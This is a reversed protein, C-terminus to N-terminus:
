HYNAALVPRQMHPDPRLGGLKPRSDVYGGLPEQFISPAAETSLRDLRIVSQRQTPRRPASSNPDREIPISSLALMIAVGAVITVMGGYIGIAGAIVLAFFGSRLLIESWHLKRKM